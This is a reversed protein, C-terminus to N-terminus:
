ATVRRFVVDRVRHGLRLGRQEFKTLPRYHPRPAYGDATNALLPEASLVGLIWDAYDEWDTAVHLYAGPKMRSALLKAFSPQILRRKHHRKKPWPDPHYNHFLNVTGTPLAAVVDGVDARCVRMNPLGRKAVRARMQRLFRSAWEIAFFCTEPRTVAQRVLWTGKGAGLEVELAPPQDARWADPFVEAWVIEPAPLNFRIEYPVENPPTAVM